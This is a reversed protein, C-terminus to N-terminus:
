IIVASSRWRWQLRCHRTLLLSVRPPPHGWGVFLSFCFLEMDNWYNRAPFIFCQEQCHFDMSEELGGVCRSGRVYGHSPIGPCLFQLLKRYRPVSTSLEIARTSNSTQRSFAFVRRPATSVDPTACQPFYTDGIRGELSRSDPKFKLLMEIRASRLVITRGAHRDSWICARVLELVALLIKM